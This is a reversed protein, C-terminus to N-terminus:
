QPASHSGSEFSAVICAALSVHSPEHLDAEGINLRSREPAQLSGGSKRPDLPVPIGRRARMPTV